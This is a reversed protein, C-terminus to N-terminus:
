QFTDFGHEAFRSLSDGASAAAAAQIVVCGADRHQATVRVHWQQAPPQHQFGTFIDGEGLYAAQQPLEACHGHQHQYSGHCQAQQQYARHQASQTAIRLIGGIYHVANGLAVQRSLHRQAFAVIGAQQRGDGAHLVAQARHQAFHAHVRFLHGCGGGFQGLDAFLGFRTHLVLVGLDGAGRCGHVLHGSGDLFHRAIGHM